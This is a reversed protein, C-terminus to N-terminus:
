SGALARQLAIKGLMVYMMDDNVPHSLGGRVDRYYREIPLSKTMSAGGIVRMCHDVAEVANNTATYKTVLISEHLDARRDPHQDWMAATHYILFRAQHLLTEAQGLRRRISELEAIPKGLGTPVREHAYQAACQLAARAVGIYVGSVTMPFWANAKPEPTNVGSARPILNAHPVQVDTLKVDHSGTTRMGMADWTEIIEVGEGPPVVFQALTDNGDKLTALIIMYDLEPSMSAFNKHGNLVWATPETSNNEYVPEAVTKPKGGRSPSGLEPETAISNIMAGKEVAERCFRDLWYDSWARRQLAAGLTQMHMTASLATSGDGVALAEMCMTAELLNGGWGGFEEPVILGPLGAARIDAYNEHPFEGTRDYHGARESFKKALEDAIAVFREQRETMPYIM